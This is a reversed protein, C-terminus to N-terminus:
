ALKGCGYRGRWWGIQGNPQSQPEQPLLLVVLRQVVVVVLVVVVSLARSFTIAYSRDLARAVKCARKVGYGIRIDGATHRTHEPQAVEGTHPPSPCMMM